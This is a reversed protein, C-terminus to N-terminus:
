GPVAELNQFDSSILSTESSVSSSRQLASSHSTVSSMTSSLGGAFGAFFHACGIVVAQRRSRLACYIANRAALNGVVCLNSALPYLRCPRFCSRASFRCPPSLFDLAFLKCKFSGLLVASTIASCCPTVPVVMRKRLTCIIQVRSLGGINYGFLM